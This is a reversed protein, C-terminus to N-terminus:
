EERSIGSEERAEAMVNEGRADNEDCEGERSPSCKDAKAKQLQQNV